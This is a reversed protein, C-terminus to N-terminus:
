KDTIKLKFGLENAVAEMTHNVCAAEESRHLVSIDAEHCWTGYLRLSILFRCNRFDEEELGQLGHEVLKSYLTEEEGAKPCLLVVARLQFNPIDMPRRKTLFLRETKEYTGDIAGREYRGKDADSTGDPPGHGAQQGHHAM